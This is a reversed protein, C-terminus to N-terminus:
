QYVLTVRIKDGLGICVWSQTGLGLQGLLLM